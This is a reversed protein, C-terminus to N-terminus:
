NECTVDVLHKVRVVYKYVAEQALVSGGINISIYLSHGFLINSFHVKPWRQEVVQSHHAGLVGKKVRM